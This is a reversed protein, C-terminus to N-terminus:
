PNTEDDRMTVFPETEHFTGPDLLLDIRERATLKHKAHQKAIRDAGGGQRSKERMARLETIRPDEEPM